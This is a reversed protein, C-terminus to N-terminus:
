DPRLRRHTVAIAQLRWPAVGLEDCDTLIGDSGPRAVAPADTSPVADVASNAPSNGQVYTIKKSGLDCTGVVKGGTAAGGDVTTLAFHEVGTARIRADIQASIAECRNAAAATAPGAGAGGNGGCGAEAAIKPEHTSEAEEDGGSERRAGPPAARM